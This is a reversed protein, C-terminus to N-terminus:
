AGFLPGSPGLITCPHGTLHLSNNVASKVPDLIMQPLLPQSIPGASRGYAKGISASTASRSKTDPSSHWCVTAAWFSPEESGKVSHTSGMYPSHCPPSISGGLGRWFAFLWTTISRLRPLPAVRKWCSRCSPSYWRCTVYFQTQAALRVGPPSSLGSLPM